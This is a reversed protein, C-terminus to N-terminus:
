HVNVPAKPFVSSFSVTRARLSIVTVPTPHTLPTLM